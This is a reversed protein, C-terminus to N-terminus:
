EEGGAICITKHIREASEVRIVGNKTGDFLVGGRHRDIGENFISDFASSEGILLRPAKRGPCSCILPVGVNTKRFAGLVLEVAHANDARLGERGELGGDIAQQLGRGRGGGVALSDSCSPTGSLHAESLVAASCSGAHHVALPIIQIV